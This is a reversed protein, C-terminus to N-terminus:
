ITGSSMIRRAALLTAGFDLLYPFRRDQQPQYTAHVRRVSSQHDIAM